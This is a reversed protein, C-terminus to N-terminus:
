ADMQNDLESSVGGSPMRYRLIHYISHTFKPYGGIEQPSPRNPYIPRSHNPFDM